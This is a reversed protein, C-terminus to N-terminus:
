AAPMEPQTTENLNAFEGHLESAAVNYAMAADAENAFSGIYKKKRDVQIQAQWRKDGSHWCVGKWKSSSNKLSKKNRNNETRTAARLNEIKNNTKNQDIHDLEKPLTEKHYLWILRHIRYEKRDVIVRLYGTHHLSGAVDGVETGGRAVKRILQGDQYDFLERVREQTIETKTTTTTSMEDRWNTQSM